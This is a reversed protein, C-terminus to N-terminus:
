WKEFTLEIFSDENLKLKDSKGTYDIPYMYAKGSITSIFKVQNLLNKDLKVKVYTPYDERIYTGEYEFSLKEGGYGGSNSNISAYSDHKFQFKIYNDSISDLGLSYNESKKSRGGM